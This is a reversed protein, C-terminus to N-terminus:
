LLDPICLMRVPAFSRRHEDCPGLRTLAALHDPTPYGKHRAFGYGPYREDLAVMLRDREVKALISAASIAPELADGQVIARAACHLNPPLTNGDILALEPVPLLARLARAMGRLTAQLINHRDIEVRSVVEIHFCLAQARILPALRNRASESLKKSDNLGHIPRTPDLIVAAVVVPGALPGRGAEDVGAILISLDM